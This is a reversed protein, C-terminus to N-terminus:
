RVLRMRSVISPSGDSVILSSASSDTLEPVVPQQADERDEYVPKSDSRSSQRLRQYLVTQPNSQGQVRLDPHDDPRSVTYGSPSVPRLRFLGAIALIVAAQGVMMAVGLGPNMMWGLWFVALGGMFAFSAFNYLFSIALSAQINKVTQKSITHMKVLPSLSREGIYVTAIAQNAMSMSPSDVAVGVDAVALPVNDNGGDGVFIVSGTKKLSRVYTMKPHESNDSQPNVSCGAQVEEKSFGLAKAYPMANEPNAGTCLRVGVGQNRFYRVVECAEKRLPEEIDMYSVVAGAYGIYYRQHMPPIEPLNLTTIEMKKEKFLNADGCLLEHEGLTLGLGNGYFIRSLGVRQKEDLVDEPHQQSLHQHIAQGVLHTSKEQLFKLYPILQESSLTADSSSQAKQELFVMKKVTKEGTTLTGNLDFVVYRAKAAKELVNADLLTAGNQVCKYTGVKGLLPVILGLTCPCATVLVGIGIQIALVLAASVGYGLAIMSYGMAVGSALLALLFVVKVFNAGIKATYNVSDMRKEAAQAAQQQMCALTSQSAPKDVEVEVTDGLVRYGQLLKYGKSVVFADTQGSCNPAMVVAKESLCVGDTPIAVGPKVRIRDGVTLQDISIFSKLSKSDTSDSLKEVTKPLEDLLRNGSDIKNKAWLEVALGLHRFGLILLGADFLSSLSQFWFSLWSVCLAICVSVTFQSDMTLHKRKASTFARTFIEWGTYLSTISSAIGLGILMPLSLGVFMPLVIWLLGVSLSLLGKRIHQYLAQTKSKESESPSQEIAPVEMKPPDVPAWLCSEDFFGVAQAEAQIKSQIAQIQIENESFVCLTLSKTDADLSYTFVSPNAVSQIAGDITSTCATCVINPDQIRFYSPM